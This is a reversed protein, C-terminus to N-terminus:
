GLFFKAEKGSEWVPLFLLLKTLCLFFNAFTQTPTFSDTNGPGAFFEVGIVSWIGMLIGLVM